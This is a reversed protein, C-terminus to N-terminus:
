RVFDAIVAPASSDFGVVDLMGADTPDAISFKTATMGVVTLKADIGTKQRYDQLAKFPHTGSNTENDTYVVFAEVPLKMELAKRFPLSCDTNGFPLGGIAKIVDDLRKRKGIDLPIFTHGFGFVVTNQEVAQTVMAMAATGERPTLNSGFLSGIGMSGSIDLALMHNKGTPVIAAFAAYFAADLADMVASIPKWSTTVGRRGAHLSHGGRYVSLAQLLTFPHIRGKKLAEVDGLREVVIRRGSNLAGITGIETMRGLNRILATLGMKPLLAEWVQPLRLMQTPLTEWPLDYDEILKVLRPVSGLDCEQAERMAQVIPPLNTVVYNRGCAWAYLAERYADERGAGQNSLHIARKHNMGERNQYQVMQRALKDVPRDAYWQAIMRKMGRGHGKGLDHCYSILTFLHTATRCVYPVTNYAMQRATVNQSVIGLATAFIAPTNKPARNEGSVRKILDWTQAPYLHWCREVVKANERTLKQASVYYTPQDSGLILFRELQKMPHIAFVFGATSNVVQDERVRETVPTATPNYLETYRPM